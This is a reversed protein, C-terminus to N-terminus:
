RNDDDDIYIDDDSDGNKNNNFSSDERVAQTSTTDRSRNSHNLTKPRGGSIPSGAASSAISKSSFYDNGSMSINPSHCALM